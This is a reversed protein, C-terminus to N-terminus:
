FIELSLRNSGQKLIFFHCQNDLCATLSFELDNAENVLGYMIQSCGVKGHHIYIAVFMKHNRWVKLIFQGQSKSHAFSHSMTHSGFGESTKQEWRSLVRHPSGWM